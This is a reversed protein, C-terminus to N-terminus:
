VPVFGQDIKHSPLRSPPKIALEAVAGQRATLAWRQL